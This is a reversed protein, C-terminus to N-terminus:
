GLRLELYSAGPVPNNHYAPIERVGLSRYLRDAGSMRAPITDLLM